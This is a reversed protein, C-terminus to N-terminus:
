FCVPFDVLNHFEQVLRPNFVKLFFLLVGFLCVFSKHQAKRLPHPGDRLPDDEGNVFCADITSIARTRM